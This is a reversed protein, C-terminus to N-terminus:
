KHGWLLEFVTGYFRPIPNYLSGFDARAMDRQVDRETHASVLSYVKFGIRASPLHHGLSFVKNVRLTGDAAFASVSVALVVITWALSTVHRKGM